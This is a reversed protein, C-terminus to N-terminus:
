EAPEPEIEDDAIWRWMLVYAGGESRSVVTIDDLELTGEEEYQRAARAYPDTNSDVGSARIVEALSVSEIQAVKDM